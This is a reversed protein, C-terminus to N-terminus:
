ICSIQVTGIFYGLEDMEQNNALELSVGSVPNRIAFFLQYEGSPLGSLHLVQHCVLATESENGGTLERIDQPLECARVTVGDPTCLFLELEYAQYVPAFGGNKLTIEM